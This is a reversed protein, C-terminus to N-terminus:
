APTTRRTRTSASSAAGASASSTSTPPATCRRARTPRTLTIGGSGSTLGEALNEEQPGRLIGLGVGDADRYGLFTFNDDALWELFAAPEGAEEGLEAATELAKARM